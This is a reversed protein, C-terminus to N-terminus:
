PQGLPDSSLRGSSAWPALDGSTARTLTFIELRAPGPVLLTYSISTRNNFPNPTNQHLQFGDPLHISEQAIVTTATETWESMDWLRVTEDVSGSVLMMGDPSFLVSLVEHTHRYITAIEERTAVDWLKITNDQSGSAIM